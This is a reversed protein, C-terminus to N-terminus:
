HHEEGRGPPEQVRGANHAREQRRRAHLHQQRGFFRFAIYYFAICHRINNFLHGELCASHEESAGIWQRNEKDSRGGRHHQRAQHNNLRPSMAVSSDVSGGSMGSQRWAHMM